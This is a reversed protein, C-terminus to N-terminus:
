QPPDSAIVQRTQALLTQTDIASLHGTQKIILQEDISFLKQRIICPQSLGASSLDTIPTDFAWTSQKASTVMLLMVHKTKTQYHETSIVVAPRKKTTHKDTFPFPVVVIAGVNYIM